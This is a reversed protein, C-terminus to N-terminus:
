HKKKQASLAAGGASFLVLGVLVGLLIALGYSEVVHGVAATAALAAVVVLFAALEPKM